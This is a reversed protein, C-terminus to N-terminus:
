DIVLIRYYLRSMEANGYLKAVGEHFWGQISIFSHHGLSQCMMAHVMEHMPVGSNPDESFVYSAEELPVGITVGDELCMAFGGSWALNRANRYENLDNFLWLIIPPTGEPVSLEDALNRRSREFETLTRELRNLAVNPGYTPVFSRLAGEADSPRSLREVVSPIMALISLAVFALACLIM